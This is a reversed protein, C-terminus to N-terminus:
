MKTKAQLVSSQLIGPGVSKTFMDAIQDSFSVFRPAIVGPRVKARIFHIYTMTAVANKENIDKLNSIYIVTHKSAFVKNKVIGIISVCM